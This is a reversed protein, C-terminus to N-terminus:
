LYMYKYFHYTHKVMRESQSSKAKIDTIKGFLDSISQQAQGIDQVNIM